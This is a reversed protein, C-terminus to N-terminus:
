MRLMRTARFMRFVRMLSPNLLDSGLLELAFGSVSCIVIVFDFRNWLDRWYEVFGFAHLKLIMEVLFAFTFINNIISTVNDFSDSADDHDTMMVAVNAVVFSM